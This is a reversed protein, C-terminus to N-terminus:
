RGWFSFQKMGTNWIKKALFMSLLFWLISLVLQPYFLPNTPEIRGILIQAPVYYLYPFPTLLLLRYLASPLLDLPFFSGSVFSILITFIFRPAWVETTWFGIFSLMLNVYFSIMTGSALAVLFLFISHPAVLPVKFYIVLILMELLAFGVNLIKDALDRTLYYRFFSVPKLLYNIITGDNIEGAVDSTRTGLVFNDILNAYLIYSLLATKGYQGFQNQRDFVANWLFFTIILSVFMRLRWLIFNLRYAFYEKITTQFVM